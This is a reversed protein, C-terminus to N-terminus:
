LKGGSKPPPRPGVSGIKKKRKKSIKYIYIYIYIQLQREELVKPGRWSAVIWGLFKVFIIFVNM